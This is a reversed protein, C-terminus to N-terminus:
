PWFRLTRTYFRPIHQVSCSVVISRHRVWSQMWNSLHSVFPRIPLFHNLIKNSGVAGMFIKGFLRNEAVWSTDLNQLKKRGQIHLVRQWLQHFFTSCTIPSWSTTCTINLLHRIGAGSNTSISSELRYASRARSVYTCLSPSGYAHAFNIQSVAFPCITCLDVRLFGFKSLLACIGIM